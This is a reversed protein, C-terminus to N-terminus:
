LKGDHLAGLVPRFKEFVEPQREFSKLRASHERKLKGLAPKLQAQVKPPQHNSWAKLEVRLIELDHIEGMIGQLARMEEIQAATFLGAVPLVAEAVYRFQKVKLRLKHLEAASDAVSSSRRYGEQAVMLIDFKLRVAREITRRIARASMKAQAIKFQRDAEKVSQRLAKRMHERMWRQVLLIEDAETAKLVDHFRLISKAKGLRTTKLIHVQLDRLPGFRRLTKKFHRISRIAEDDDAKDHTVAAALELVAITRRTAVRIDHVASESPDRLVRKWEKSFLKWNRSLNM